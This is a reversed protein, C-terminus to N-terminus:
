NRLYAPLVGFDASGRAQRDREISQDLQELADLTRRRKEDRFSEPRVAAPHLHVTAAPIAVVTPLPQAGRAMERAIAKEFYGVTGPPGDRKHAMSARVGAIAAEPTWGQNLWAQIRNPAGCWGPPTAPGTEVGAAAAVQEFLDWAEKSILGGPSTRARADGGGGIEEIPTTIPAKKQTIGPSGVPNGTDNTKLSKPRGGAAGNQRATSARKCVGAHEKLLRKQTWHGDGFTWFEMITPKMKSWNRRDVRAWKALKADDDPLRCDPSRWAVMLLLLYAGTEAATLHGTDALFADTFLPLYPFAAM